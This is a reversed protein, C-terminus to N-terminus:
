CYDEEPGTFLPELKIEDNSRIKRPVGGLQKEVDVYYKAILEPNKNTPGVELWLLRRAKVRESGRVNANKFCNEPYM